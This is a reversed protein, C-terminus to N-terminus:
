QRCIKSRPSFCLNEWYQVVIPARSAHALRAVSVSTSVAVLLLCLSGIVGRRLSLTMAIEKEFDIHSHFMKLPRDDRRDVEKHLQEIQFNLPV